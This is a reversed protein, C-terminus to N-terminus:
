QRLGPPTSRGAQRGGAAAGGTRLLLGIPLVVAMTLLWGGVVDSPWHVVLAVRSVGVTVAWGAALFAIVMRVSRRRVLSWCVLTTILAATAAATTHGSPFSWGIAPALHNVPRPRQITNVLLLRIVLTGPFALAIFAAARPRRRWLMLCSVVAIPGLVVSSGTVTVVSMTSRWLPHALAIRLAAASVAADFSFLPRLRVVM